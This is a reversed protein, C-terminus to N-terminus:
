GIYEIEFYDPEESIGLIEGYKKLIEIARDQTLAKDNANLTWPYCPDVGIHEPGDLEGNDRFGKIVTLNEIENITDAIMWSIPEGLFDEIERLNGAKIVENFRNQDDEDIFDTFYKAVFDLVNDINTENFLVYGFGSESWFHMSM